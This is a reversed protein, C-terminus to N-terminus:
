CLCSRMWVVRLELMHFKVNENENYELRARFVYIPGFHPLGREYLSVSEPGILLQRFPHLIDKISYSVFLDQETKTQFPMADYPTFFEQLAKESLDKYFRNRMGSLVNLVHNVAEVSLGRFMWPYKDDTMTDLQVQIACSDVRCLREHDLGKDQSAFDEHHLILASM